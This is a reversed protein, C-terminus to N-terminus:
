KEGVLYLEEGIDSRFRLMGWELWFFAKSYLRDKIRPSSNMQSVGTSSIARSASAIFGSGSATSYLSLVSYGARRVLDALSPRGFIYLHRPPDLPMWSERFLKHGLSNLNPTTAVLHGGGKLIRHCERLLGLPDHLHEMVHDL